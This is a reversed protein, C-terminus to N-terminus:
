TNESGLIQQMESSEFLETINSEDVAMFLMNDENKDTDKINEAESVPKVTEPKASVLGISKTTEAQNKM